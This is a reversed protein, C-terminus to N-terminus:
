NKKKKKGPLLSRTNIMVHTVAGGLHLGLFLVLFFAGQEKQLSLLSRCLGTPELGLRPELIQLLALPRPQLLLLGAEIIM